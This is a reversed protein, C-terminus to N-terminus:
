TGPSAPPRVWDDGLDVMCLEPHVFPRLGVSTDDRGLTRAVGKLLGLHVSCVVGPNRRAEDRFPCAHLAIERGTDDAEPAFELQTLLRVIPVIADETPKTVESRFAASWNEGARIARARGGDDDASIVSVLARNLQELLDDPPEPVVSVLVRPRGRQAIREVERQILGAEELQELHFRATSVHMALDAAVAVADLPTASEILFELVRRRTPSALAAHWKPNREQPQM